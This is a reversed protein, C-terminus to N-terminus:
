SNSPPEAHPHPIRLMLGLIVMQNSYNQSAVFM